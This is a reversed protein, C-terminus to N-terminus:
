VFVAYVAWVALVIWIALPLWEKKVMDKGLIHKTLKLTTDAYPVLSLGVLLVTFLIVSAVQEITLVAFIQIGLVVLLVLYTVTLATPHKLIKTAKKILSKPNIFVCVVKVLVLVGFILAIIEIPTM